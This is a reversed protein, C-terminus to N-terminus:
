GRLRCRWYRFPQSPETSMRQPSVWTSQVAETSSLTGGNRRPLPDPHTVASYEISGRAVWLLDGRSAVFPFIPPLVWSICLSIPRESRLTM